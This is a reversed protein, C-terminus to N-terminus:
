KVVKLTGASVSAGKIRGTGSYTLTLHYRGVGLRPLVVWRSGKNSYTFDISASRKAGATSTATLTVRGPPSATGPVTVKVQAKANQSKPVPKSNRYFTMKSSVKVPNIVQSLAVSRFAIREKWTQQGTEYLVGVGAGIQVIDSYSGPTSHLELQYRSRWTKGGTTSVFISLDRRLNRTRDAPATFLLVNDYTGSPTLAAGQVSVIPLKSAAFGKGALTEGGDKSLAWERATGAPAQDIRERYSIFLDGNAMEAATGEIWDHTGATDLQDYGTHWTAGHDDSYIGYAGYLGDKTKYAVPYLLRGAHTRTLQIGHGPGALGGKLGDAKMPSSLLASFTKGDDTSTQLYLGKGQGGSNERVSVSSLVLVNGTQADVMASPSAVRNAGDSAIVKPASWTCGNDTSRATAIDYNGTDSADNNDRAEAFAVLTGKPTRVLSPIRYWLTKSPKSVFPASSCTATRTISSAPPSADISSATASASLANGLALGAVATSAILGGSWRRFTSTRTM